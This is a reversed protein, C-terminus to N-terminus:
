GSILCPAAPDHKAFNLRARVVDCSGYSYRCSLTRECKSTM